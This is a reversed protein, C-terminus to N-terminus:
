FYSQHFWRFFSHAWEGGWNTNPVDRFQQVKNWNAFLTDKISKYYLLRIDFAPNVVYNIAPLNLEQRVPITIVGPSM